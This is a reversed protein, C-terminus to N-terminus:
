RSRQRCHLLSRKFRASRSSYSLSKSSSPCNHARLVLLPGEVPVPQGLRDGPEEKCQELVVQPQEGTSGSAGGGAAGAAGGVAAGGSSTAGGRAAGPFIPTQQMQPTNPVARETIEDAAWTVSGAISLFLVLTLFRSM